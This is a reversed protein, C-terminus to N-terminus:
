SINIQINLGSGILVDAILSYSNKLKDSIKVADVWEIKEIGEEQQPVLKEESSAKM